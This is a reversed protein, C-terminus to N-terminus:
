LASPLPENRPCLRELLTQGEASRSFVELKEWEVRQQPGSVEFDDFCFGPSVTCGVLAFAHTQHNLLQNQLIKLTPEPLGLLSPFDFLPFAGFWVGGSVVYQPVQGGQLDHGLVTFHITGDRIEVVVLPDGFYFHWMEDSPIRHLRSVQGAPLLYYISTSIPRPVRFRPPLNSLRVQISSEYTRKFYGGEPHPSLSLTAIIRSVPNAM